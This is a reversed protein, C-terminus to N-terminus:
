SLAAFRGSKWGGDLLVTIETVSSGGTICVGIPLQWLTGTTPLVQGKGAAANTTYIGVPLGATFTGSVCTLQSPGVFRVRGQAGAVIAEQAICPIMCSPPTGTPSLKVVAWVSDTAGPTKTTQSMDLYCLAFKPITTSSEGNVCIADVINPEVGVAPPVNNTFLSMETPEKWPEQLLVEGMAHAM